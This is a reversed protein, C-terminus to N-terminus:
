LDRVASAWPHGDKFLAGRTSAAMANGSAKLDTKLDRGYGWDDLMEQLNWSAHYLPGMGHASIIYVCVDSGAADIISGVERDM